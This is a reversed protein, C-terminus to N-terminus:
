AAPGQLRKTETFRKRDASVTGIAVVTEPHDLYRGGDKLRGYGDQIADVVKGELVRPEKLAKLIQEPDAEDSFREEHRDGEMGPAPIVHVIQM